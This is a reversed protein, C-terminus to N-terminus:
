VLNSYLYDLDLQQGKNKSNHYKELQKFHNRIIKGSSLVDNLQRVYFKCNSWSTVTKYEEETLKINPYEDWWIKKESQDKIKFTLSVVKRKDKSDKNKLVTVLIDTNENIEKIPDAIGRKYFDKFINYSPSKMDLKEKLEEITLTPPFTRGAYSKLLEYLTIAKKSQLSLINKKFIKTFNADLGVVMPTIYENWTFVINTNGQDEQTNYEINKFYPTINNTKKEQNVWRCYAQQQFNELVNNLIEYNRGSDVSVDLYNLFERRNLITQTLTNDKDYFKKYEALLVAMLKVEKVTMNNITGQILANSKTILQNDEIM